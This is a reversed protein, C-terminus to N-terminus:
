KIKLTLYIMQLYYNNNHSLSTGLIDIGDCNSVENIQLIYDQVTCEVSELKVM